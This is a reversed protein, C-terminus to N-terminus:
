SRLFFCTALFGRRPLSPPKRNVPKASEIPLRGILYEMPVRFFDSLAILRIDHCQQEDSAGAVALQTSTHFQITSRTARSTTIAPARQNERNWKNSGTLPIKVFTCRNRSPAGIERSNSAS